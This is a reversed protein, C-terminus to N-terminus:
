RGLDSDRMDHRPVVRAADIESVDACGHGTAPDVAFDACPSQAAADFTKPNGVKEACVGAVDADHHAAVAGVLVDEPADDFMVAGAEGRDIDMRAAIAEFVVPQSALNAAASRD